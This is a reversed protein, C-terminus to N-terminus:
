PSQCTDVGPVQACVLGSQCEGDSDCDGQGAACPGCDRCYDLHGVPHPCASVECADTGPVQACTLGSQCESDGDCDGQGEPCPGCDRCWDPGPQFIDCGSFDPYLLWGIDEMLARALGVVHTPGTYEPEM